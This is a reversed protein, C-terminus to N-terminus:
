NETPERNAKDLVLVEVPVSKIAELRLGLQEKIADWVTPRGDVSPEPSTEPTVEPAANPPLVVVGSGPVFAVSEKPRANRITQFSLDYDYEGALGTADAVPERLKLALWYALGEMSEHRGRLITGAVTMLEGTGANASFQPTGNKVVVDSPPPGPAAEGTNAPAVGAKHLKPGGKAVVLRYGPLQRTERHVVLGFREALLRQLMIRIQGKTSGAPVKAEVDFFETGMWPSRWDIEFGQKLGYAEMALGMLTASSRFRAPSSPGPPASRGVQNPDTRKISAVEFQLNRDGSQSSAKEGALPQANSRLPILGILITGTLTLLAASALPVRNAFGPKRTFQNAM